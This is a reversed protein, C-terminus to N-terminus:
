PTCAALVPQTPTLKAFSPSSATGAGVAQTPSTHPAVDQARLCNLWLINHVALDKPM